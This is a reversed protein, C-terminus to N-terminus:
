DQWFRAPGTRVAPETKRQNMFGALREPTPEEAEVRPRAAPTLGFQQLMGAARRWADAAIAHEPRARHLVAGAQTRAKYTTGQRGLVGAARRYEVLAEALLELAVVDGAGCVLMPGLLRILRRFERRAALSFGHRPALERVAPVKPERRNMRDARATGELVKMSTPKRNM